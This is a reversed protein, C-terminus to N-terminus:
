ECSSTHKDDPGRNTTTSQYRRSEYIQEEPNAIEIDVAPMLDHALTPSVSRSDDGDVM